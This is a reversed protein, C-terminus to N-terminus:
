FSYNLNLGNKSLLVYKKNELEVVKAKLSNLVRVNDKTPYKSVVVSQHYAMLTTNELKKEISELKHSDVDKKLNIM